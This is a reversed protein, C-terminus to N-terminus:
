GQVRVRPDLLGYLLEVVVSALMLVVSAAIAAGAVVNYDRALAAEVFARGLGPVGFAIEVVIASTVVGTATPGLFTVVPLLGARLGHDVVIRADGAGLARALRAPESSLAGAVSARALRAIAAAHAAGLAVVPLIWTSPGDTGSSPLLGLGVSFVLALLPGLVYPPVSEVLDCAARVAADVRRRRAVAAAVGVPVGVALAFALALGVLAISTPVTRRLEDVVRVGPRRLSAGTCADGEGRAWGQLAAAWHALAPAGLDCRADLAAAIEPPLSARDDFPGGPAVRLLAFAITALLVLVFPIAALRRLAYGIM